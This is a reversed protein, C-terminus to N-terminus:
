KLKRTYPVIKPLFGEYLSEGIWDTKGEVSRDQVKKEGFVEKIKLIVLIIRKQLYESNFMESSSFVNNNEDDISFGETEEDLSFSKLFFEFNVAKFCQNPELIEDKTIEPTIIRIYMKEM